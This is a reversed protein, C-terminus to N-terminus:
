RPFLARDPSPLPKPRAVAFPRASAMPMSSLAHTVSSVKVMVSVKWRQVVERMPSRKRNATQRRLLFGGRGTTSRAPRPPNALFSRACM